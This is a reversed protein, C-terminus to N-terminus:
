PLSPRRVRRGPSKRGLVYRAAAVCLARITASVPEGWRHTAAEELLAWEEASFVCLARRERAPAGEREGKREVKPWTDRGVLHAAAAVALIRLTVALPESGRGAAVAQVDAWEAASFVVLARNERRPTPPEPAPV